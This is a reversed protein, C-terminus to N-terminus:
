TRVGFWGRWREANASDVRLGSLPDALFPEFQWDEPGVFGLRSCRTLFDTFDDGLRWGHIASGDHSVFVVPGSDVTLDIALIDGTAVEAFSLKGHWVRHYPNSQDPFNTDVWAQRGRESALLGDLSWQCTGSFIDRFPPAPRDALYWYMNVSRSFELLTQRFAIPLQFGLEGEVREIDHLAAPAEITLVTDKAGRAACAEISDHLSREFHQWDM